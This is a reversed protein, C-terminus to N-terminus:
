KELHESEWTDLAELVQKKLLEPDTSKIRDFLPKMEERCPLHKEGWRIMEVLLPLLDKGRDTLYYLKRTKNSPHLVDAIIGGAALRKLRDALINTAIGEPSGLFEKYEHKGFFLLDRILLLTWRDGFIDLVNGIVCPSRSNDNTTEM